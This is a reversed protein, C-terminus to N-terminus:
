RRAAPGNWSSMPGEQHLTCRASDHAQRASRQVTAELAGHAPVLLADARCAPDLPRHAVHEGVVPREQEPLDREVREHDEDPGADEQREVVGRRCALDDVVAGVRQQLALLHRSAYRETSSRESLTGAPRSNRWTWWQAASTNM